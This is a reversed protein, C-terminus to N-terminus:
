SVLAHMSENKNSLTQTHKQILPVSFIKVTKELAPIESSVVVMAVPIESSVVFMANLKYM